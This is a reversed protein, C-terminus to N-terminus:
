KPKILYKVIEATKWWINGSMLFSLFLIGNYDLFSQVGNQDKGLSLSSEWCSREYGLPHVSWPNNRRKRTNLSITSMKQCRRPFINFNEFLIHIPITPVVQSFNIYTTIHTGFEFFCRNQDINRYHKATKMYEAIDIQNWQWKFSRTRFKKFLIVIMPRIRRYFFNSNALFTVLVM